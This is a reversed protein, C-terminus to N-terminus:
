KGLTAKVLDVFRDVTLIDMASEEPYFSHLGAPVILSIDSKAMQCLQNVSVGQQLTMLHKQPVRSGEQLVQRWRDKLTTKLGVVFLRESPYSTDQYESAGPIVIDPRGDVNPRVDFPIQEEKLVISMQNEFSRGARARRRNTISNAVALFDDIDRFMQTIEPGCLLREVMRYLTYETKVSKLVRYDPDKNEFGTLCRRLAEVAVESFRDGSPFESLGEAFERFHREICAQQSELPELGAAYLAWNGFVQVGLAAQLEEIDNELHLVYARFDTSAPAGIPILVLLNGVADANLFPFDRGFRTLRYESRTGKGYWTVVSDTTRGDQWTITVWHKHNTGKEPPHTTFYRWVEQTKPLYFGAQHSGTTGADNPSIFKLLACGFEISDSIAREAWPSIM